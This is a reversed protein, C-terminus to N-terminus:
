AQAPVDFHRTALPSFLSRLIKVAVGVGRGGPKECTNMRSPTLTRQKSVSKCTNMRFTNTPASFNHLESPGRGRKKALLAGLAGRRFSRSSGHLTVGPPFASPQSVLPTSPFPIQLVMFVFPCCIPRAVSARLCLAPHIHTRRRVRLLTPPFPTLPSAPYKM